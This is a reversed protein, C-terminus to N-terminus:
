APAWNDASASDTSQSSDPAESPASSEGKWAWNWGPTTSNWRGPTDWRGPTGSGGPTTTNPREPAPTWGPTTTNPTDPTDPTPRDEGRGESRVPTPTKDKFLTAFSVNGCNHAIFMVVNMEVQWKQVLEKLSEVTLNNVYRLENDIDQIQALNMNEIFKMKDTMTEQIDWANVGDITLAEIAWKSFWELQNNNGKTRVSFASDFQAYAATFKTGSQIRQEVADITALSQQVFGSSLGENRLVDGTRAQLRNLEQAYKRASERGQAIEVTNRGGMLANSIFDLVRTQEIPTRAQAITNYLEAPVKNRMAGLIAAHAAAIAQPNRSQKANTIQEGIANLETNRADIYNDIWALNTPVEGWRKFFDGLRQFINRQQTQRENSSASQNAPANMFSKMTAGNMDMKGDGSQGLKEQQYKKLASETGPGFAGDIGNTDYGMNTLLNQLVRVDDGSMGRKLTRGFQVNVAERSSEQGRLNTADLPLTTDEPATSWSKIGKSELMYNLTRSSTTASAELIGSRPLGHATQYDALAKQTGNGFDGDFTGNYRADFWAETLFKQLAKVDAGKTCWKELRRQFTNKEFNPITNTDVEERHNKQNDNTAQITDNREVVFGNEILSQISFRRWEELTKMNTEGLVRRIAAQTEPSFKNIDMMDLDGDHDADVSSVLKEWWLNNAICMMFLTRLNRLLTFM